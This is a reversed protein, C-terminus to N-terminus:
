YRLGLVLHWLAAPTAGRVGIGDRERQSFLQAVAVCRKGGCRGYRRAPDNPTYHSCKERLTPTDDEHSTRRSRTPKARLKRVPNKKVPLLFETSRRAQRSRACYSPFEIAM